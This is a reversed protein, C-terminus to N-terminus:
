ECENLVIRYPISTTYDCSQPSIYKEGAVFTLLAGGGTPGSCTWVAAVQILLKKGCPIQIQRDTGNDDNIVTKSLQNGSNADKVTIVLDGYGFGMSIKPTIITLYCTGCSDNGTKPLKDAPHECSCLLLYIITFFLIPKIM